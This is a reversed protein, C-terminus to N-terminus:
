AALVSRGVILRMIENTGELIQHVRLDRVVKEIGYDQLYGYGGHLQLSENAVRFGVDTAFRKAMACRTAADPTKADLASAADRVLLRAAELETAMDAVAFVVSQKEALAEGFTFREHVYAIARDLAWRAGGISCTAINLRGGNLANMAISFGRGEGGLLNEAPVRVEDLIVPRTPQANWGMKKENAGFSLGESDAPVLFASIGRAGPEGTRAMVVYVSAEGAGSIFQKVGTLVYTDGHRIASTTIAAADSGAGPETLCYAGLDEMAVLSPLWRERQEATGYTDIMWAVMNHITIYATVTPDGYALEEFIAVADVRSLGAGGVDDNVYVGGLGLEGARRLVDRPFHKEADWELTRPAFETAAFDRVADLIADREDSSLTGTSPADLAPAPTTDM